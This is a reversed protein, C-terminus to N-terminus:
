PCSAGWPADLCRGDLCLGLQNGQGPENDTPASSCVYYGKYSQALDCVHVCHCAAHANREAVGDFCYSVPLAGVSGDAAGADLTVGSDADLTPDPPSSGGCACAFAVMLLLVCRIAADRSELMKRLAVTREPSRPLRECLLDASTQYDVLLTYRLEAAYHSTPPSVVAQPVEFFRLMPEPDNNM